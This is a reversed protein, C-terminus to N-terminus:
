KTEGTALQKAGNICRNCTAQTAAVECVQSRYSNGMYSGDRQGCLTALNERYIWGIHIANGQGVKTYITNM